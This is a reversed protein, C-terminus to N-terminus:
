GNLLKFRKSGSIRVTTATQISIQEYVSNNDLESIHASHCPGIFRWAVFPTTEFIEMFIRRDLFSSAQSGQGSVAASLSCLAV